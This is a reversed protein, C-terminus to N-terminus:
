LLSAPTNQIVTWTRFFCLIGLVVVVPMINKKGSAVLFFFKKGSTKPIMLINKCIYLMKTNNKTLVPKQRPVRGHTGNQRTEEENNFVSRLQPLHPRCNILHQKPKKQSWTSSNSICEQFGKPLGAVGPFTKVSKWPHIVTRM